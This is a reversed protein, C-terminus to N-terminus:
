YNTQTIRGIIRQKSTNRIEIGSGCASKDRTAWTESQALSVLKKVLFKIYQQFLVGKIGM